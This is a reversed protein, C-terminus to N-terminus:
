SFQNSVSGKEFIEALKDIAIECQRDNEKSYTSLRMVVHPDQESIQRRKFNEDLIQCQENSMLPVACLLGFRISVLSIRCIGMMRLYHHLMTTPSPPFITDVREAFEDSLEQM